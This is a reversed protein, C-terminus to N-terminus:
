RINALIMAIGRKTEKQWDYTDDADLRGHRNVFIRVNTHWHGDGDKYRPLRESHIIDLEELWYICNSITRTSLGIDDSIRCLLNSYVQPACSTHTMHCRICALLLLIAEANYPKSDSLITKNGLFILEYEAKSILGYCEDHPILGEDRDFLGYDALRRVIYRVQSASSGVNRNSLSYGCLSILDNIDRGNWHAFQISMYVLVRKAGLNKARILSRPVKITEM